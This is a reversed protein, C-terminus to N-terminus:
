PEEFSSLDIESVHKGLLDHRVLAVNGVGETEHDVRLYTSSYLRPDLGIPECLERM